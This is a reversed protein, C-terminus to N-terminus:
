SFFLYARKDFRCREAGVLGSLDVIANFVKEPTARYKLNGVVLGIPEQPLSAISRSPSQAPPYTIKAQDCYVFWQIVMHYRRNLRKRRKGPVTEPM